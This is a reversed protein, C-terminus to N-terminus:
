QQSIEYDLIMNGSESMEVVQGFELKIIKDAIGFYRDDHTAVIICKGMRKLDMLLTEYFFRRFEPDQDSAWEDFLCISKNELYSILLALRKRQGSSLKSTTFAGERISVKEQLKLMLLKEDIQEEKGTLDVGYLKDFLHYDSFIVSYYQSLTEKGIRSGNVLLEGNCPTYLGSLLKALTSKGSGNGGVIFTIEGQNFKCSVPGIKFHKDVEQNAYEYVINRLEMTRFEEVGSQDVAQPRSEKMHRVVTDKLNNIRRLAIRFRLLEPFTRLVGNVPGTIYLFVFVFNRIEGTDSNFILLPLLFVVSGIVMTFLLEGLIYTNTFKIDGATNTQRFAENNRDMDKIFDQGKRQSVKLEKLGRSLDMVFQIYASQIDRNKDWYRRAVKTVNMYLFVAIGFTVLSGLFAYFNIFGLYILCFLITVLSSILGVLVGPFKSIVISDNNLVATIEGTQMAEIKEFPAQLLVRSIEARKEFIVNNSVTILRMRVIRQTLMYVVLGLLFYLAMNNWSHDVSTFASNITFIVLANGLGSLASLVVLSFVHDNVSRDLPISAAFYAFFFLIAGFFVRVTISLSAPAWVRLFEWSVHDYLFTPINYLGYGIFLILIVSFILEGPKRFYSHLSVKIRHRILQSTKTVTFYLVAIILLISFCMVIFSILDANKYPDDVRRIPAELGELRDLLYSGLEGTYKSNLNALIAVGNGTTRDFGIFSSFNPNTGGHTVRKYGGESVMWGGGYFGNDNDAEMAGDREHAREILSDFLGTGSITINEGLWKGVDGINSYIYGAPTNAKYVPAQYERPALFNWKYGKALNADVGRRGATTHDLGLKVLVEKDMFEDYPQRTVKEIILGLVDYNITAYEFGAGPMRRLEVGALRRITADLDDNGQGERILDISSFPIGTRQHLFQRITFDTVKKGKYVGYWWPLYKTVQDDLSLRGEKQLYLIGLATFAKSNSGLEFVTSSDVRKKLAVDSFGYEKKYTERGRSYVVIALGPIGSKGMQREVIQDIDGAKLGEQSFIVEPLLALVYFLIWKNM